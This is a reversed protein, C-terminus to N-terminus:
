KPWTNYCSHCIPFFILDCLQPQTSFFFFIYRPSLFLLCILSMLVWFHDFNGQVGSSKYWKTSWWAPLWISWVEQTSVSAMGGEKKEGAKRTKRYRDSGATDRDIGFDTRSLSVRLWRPVANGKKLSAQQDQLSKRIGTQGTWQAWICPDRQGWGSIEQWHNLAQRSGGVGGLNKAWHAEQSVGSVTLFCKSAVRPIHQGRNTLRTFGLNGLRAYHKMNM